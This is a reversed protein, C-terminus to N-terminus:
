FILLKQKERFQIQQNCLKECHGQRNKKPKKM